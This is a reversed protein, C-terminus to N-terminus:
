LGLEKWNEKFDVDFPHQLYKVSRGEILKEILRRANTDKFHFCELFKGLAAYSANGKKLIECALAPAMAALKAGTLALYATHPHQMWCAMTRYETRLPGDNGHGGAERWDGWQGYKLRIAEPNMRRLKCEASPLIELGEMQEAFRDLGEIIKNFERLGGEVGKPAMDLHVHGGLTLTREGAIHVNDIALTAGKVVAGARWRYKRLEKLYENTDMIRQIDKVIAFTGRHPKPRIEIVYGSHDWGVVGDKPMLKHTNVISGKETLMVFEPDCGVYWPNVLKAPMTVEDELPLGRGASEKGEFWQRYQLFEQMASNYNKQRALADKWQSEVDM